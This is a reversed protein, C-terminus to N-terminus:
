NLSLLHTVLHPGLMACSHPQSVYTARPVKDVQSCGCERMCASILSTMSWNLETKTPAETRSRSSKATTAHCSMPNAQGKRKAEPETSGSSKQHAGTSSRGLM